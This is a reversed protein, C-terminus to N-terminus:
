WLNSNHSSFPIMYHSMQSEDLEINPQLSPFAVRCEIHTPALLVALNFELQFIQVLHSLIAVFEECFVEM